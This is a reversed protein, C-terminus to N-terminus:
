ASDTKFHIRFLKPDGFLQSQRRLHFPPIRLSMAPAQKLSTGEEQSGQVITIKCLTITQIFSGAMAKKNRFRQTTDAHYM